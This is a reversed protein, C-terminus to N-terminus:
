SSELCMPLTNSAEVERTTQGESIITVYSSPKGLSQSEDCCRLWNEFKIAVKIKVQAFGHEQSLNVKAMKSWTLIM